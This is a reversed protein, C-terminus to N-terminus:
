ITEVLIMPLYAKTDFGLEVIEGLEVLKITNWNLYHM